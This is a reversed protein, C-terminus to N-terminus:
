SCGGRELGAGPQDITQGGIVQDVLFSRAFRSGRSSLGTFSFSKVKRIFSLPRKGTLTGNFFFRFVRQLVEARATNPGPLTKRQFPFRKFKMCGNQVICLLFLKYKDPCFFRSSSRGHIQSFQLQQAYKQRSCNSASKFIDPM